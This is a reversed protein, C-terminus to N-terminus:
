SALVEDIVDAPFFGNGGTFTGDTKVWAWWPQYGVGFDGWTERNEDAIQPFTGVNLDSVFAEM